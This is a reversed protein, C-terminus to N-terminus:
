GRCCRVRGCDASPGLRRLALVRFGRLSRRPDRPHPRDARRAPRDRALDPRHWPGGARQAAACDSGASPLRANWMTTNLDGALVTPRGSDRVHQALAQIQANRRRIASSDVPSAPHVLLFEVDGAPTALTAAIAPSSGDGIRITRAGTSRCAVTSRLGSTPSRGPVEFDFRIASACRSSNRAALARESRRPGRCGPGSGDRTAPYPRVQPQTTSTPFWRAQRAAIVSGAYGGRQRLVLAPGARLRPARRRGRRNRVRPARAVRPFGCLRPLRRRFAGPLEVPQRAGRVARSIPGRHLRPRAPRHCGRRAAGSARRIPRAHRHGASLGRDPLQAAARQPESAPAQPAGEGRDPPHARADRRVAQRSGRAHPRDILDIGFRMRLVKAERPTLESSCTTCPRACRGRRDGLRAPERRRADEIFDGLHSDEDDGIPTEM